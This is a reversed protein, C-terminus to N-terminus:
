KKCAFYIDAITNYQKLNIIRRKEGEKGLGVSMMYGTSGGFVECVPAWLEGSGTWQSVYEASIGESDSEDIVNSRSAKENTNTLLRILFKLSAKTHGNWKLKFSLPTPSTTGLFHKLCTAVNVNDTSELVTIFPQFKNLEDKETLLRIFKDIDLNQISVSLYNVRSSAKKRNEGKNNRDGADNQDKIVVNKERTNTADSQEDDCTKLNEYAGKFESYQEMRNLVRDYIRKESSYAGQKIMELAEVMKFWISALQEKQYVLYDGGVTKPTNSRFPSEFLFSDQILDLDENSCDLIGNPYASRLEDIIKLFKNNYFDLEYAYIILIKAERECSDITNSFSDVDGSVISNYIKIKIDRPCETNEILAELKKKPITQLEQHVITWEPSYNLKRKILKNILAKDVIPRYNIRHLIIKQFLRSFIDIKWILSSNKTFRVAPEDDLVDFLDRLFTRGEEDIISSEKFVKKASETLMSLFAYPTNDPDSNYGKDMTEHDDTEWLSEDNDVDELSISEIENDIYEQQADAKDAEALGIDVIEKLGNLYNRFDNFQNSDTGSIIKTINTSQNDDIPTEKSVSPSAIHNSQHEHSEDDDVDSYLDSEIRNIEDEVTLQAYVRKIMEDNAHGTMRCLREPSVGKRIMNTIFTCRADHSSLTKYLPKRVEKQTSDIKVIERDLGAKKAIRRIAENYTNNGKGKTKEEFEKPDVLSHNKIKDMLMTVKPTIPIIANINEKTTSVVIYKYKKGQKVKYNGTLLKALDSVRQGCELHLLFVDRYEEEVPTLGSCSEIAAVENDLLPIHGMQDERRPDDVKIWVVPSPAKEQPVLVKNILLAIIAGCRNLQGVGFNRMNDDDKSKNMKDILYEKYMNLGRQSFIQMTKDKERLTDVFRGFESLLSESQRKTSDKISPKVYSHYYELADAAIYVLNIKKIAMDRNIFKKLTEAIDDVNNNCIYEIFESFYGRLKNLYNNAIKNNRNDQKSQINSIVALQREQDWQSAYVKMKTYIRYRKGDVSAVLYIQCPHTSHSNRLYFKLKSERYFIQRKKSM